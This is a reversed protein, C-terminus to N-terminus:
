AAARRKERYYLFLPFPGSVGFVLALQQSWATQYILGALGSLFFAALLSLFRLRESM